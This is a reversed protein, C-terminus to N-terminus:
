KVRRLPVKTNGRAKGKNQLQRNGYFPFGGGGNNNTQTIATKGKGPKCVWEKNKVFCVAGTDKDIIPQPAYMWAPYLKQENAHASQACLTASMVIIALVQLVLVFLMFKRM